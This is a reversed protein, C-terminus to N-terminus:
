NLIHFCRIPMETIDIIYSECKIMKDYIVNIDDFNSNLGEISKEEKLANNMYNLYEEFLKRNSDRKRLFKYITFPKFDNLGFREKINFNSFIPKSTTSNKLNLYTYNITDITQNENSITVVSFGPNTKNSPSISPIHFVPMYYKKEKLFDEHFEERIAVKSAHLHSSFIMIITDSYEKALLDFKHSFDKLWNNVMKKHYSCHVPIHYHFIAKKNMNRLEELKTEIFMFQEDILFNNFDNSLLNNEISFITSHIAIGVINDSINYFYFPQLYTKSNGNSSITKEIFINEKQSSIILNNKIRALQENYQEVVPPTQYREIFDNNGLSFIIEINPFYKLLMEQIKSFTRDYNNKINITDKNLKHAISDGLIIIKDFPTKIHEENAKELMLTLLNINTDCEFMGLDEGSLIVNPDFQIDPSTEIVKKCQYPKVKATSDYFIDFHIDSLYLIRQTQKLCLAQILITSIILIIVLTM